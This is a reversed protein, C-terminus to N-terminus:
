KFENSKLITHGSHVRSKSMKKPPTLDEIRPFLLLGSKPLSQNRCNKAVVVSACFVLSFRM